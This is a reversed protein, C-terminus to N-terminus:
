AEAFELSQSVPEPKFPKWVAAKVIVSLSIINNLGWFTNAVIASLDTYSGDFHWQIGAFIIGVFTVAMFALQIRVLKLFTGDQRDKPTTPFSIKKNCVVTWLARLNVPFFALYYAKGRHNEVGWAGVMMALENLILFPLIRVFFESSYASVPAIGSFLYIIPACLFILNWVGALYSWFTAGYMLKQGLSMGSRFVPNDHLGIDLTGGAYKFRQVIWTQLDQPSLMKTEINPHYVSKWNRENDGHLVISTYIDESVHFKYPTMETEMIQVRRMEGALAERLEADPVTKATTEVTKEIQMSYAKLAAEM